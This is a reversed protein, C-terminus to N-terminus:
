TDNKEDALSRKSDGKWNSGWKTTDHILIHPLSSREKNQSKQSQKISTSHGDKQKIWVLIGALPVTIGIELELEM